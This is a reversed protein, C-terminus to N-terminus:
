ISQLQIIQEPTPTFRKTLKSKMSQELDDVYKTPQFDILKKTAWEQLQYVSILKTIMAKADGIFDDDKGRMEDALTNMKNIFIKTSRTSDKHESNPKIFKVKSFPKEFKLLYLEQMRDKRSKKWDAKVFRFYHEFMAAWINCINQYELTELSHFNYADMGGVVKSTTSNITFELRWIDKNTDLNTNKWTEWIYPKKVENAQEITKNYLKYTVDSTAAGFSLTEYYNKNKHEGNIKFKSHHFKLVDGSLFKKIFTEPHLRSHNKTADIFYHFDYAIDLRTIGIFEM